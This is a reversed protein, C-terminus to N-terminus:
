VSRQSVPSTEYLRLLQNPQRRPSLLWWLRIHSLYLFSWRQRSPTKTLVTQVEFEFGNTGDPFRDTTVGTTVTGGEVYVHPISSIGTNIEFRDPCMEDKGIVEFINGKPSSRDPSPFINTTIGTFVLGGSVYNHPITSLGVNVRLENTSDIGVVPFLNGQTGDPFINTTIGVLLRVAKMMSTSSSSVGVNIRVEPQHLFM